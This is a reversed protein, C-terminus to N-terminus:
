RGEYEPDRKELFADIGEEFDETAFVLSWAYRELELGANLDTRNGENVVNKLISLLKPSNELVEDCFEKAEDMLRDPEVVRNVLGIEYAREVDIPNGTFMMEKAIGIGVMDPLRQTGGGGPIAGIAIETQGLKADDTAVRLDCCMAIELGGGMAYGDIAAVVPKPISEVYNYLGQTHETYAKADFPDMEKFLRVDSGAIFTDGGGKLIIAEVDDNAEADELESRLEKRTAVDMANRKEPRDVSVIAIAGHQTQVVHEGVM